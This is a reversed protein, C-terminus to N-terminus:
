VGTLHALEGTADGFNETRIGGMDLMSVLLNNLPTDKEYKL